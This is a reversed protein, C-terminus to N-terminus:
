ASEQDCKKVMEWSLHIQYRVGRRRNKALHLM